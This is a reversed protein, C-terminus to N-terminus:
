RGPMRRRYRDGIHGAVVALVAASIAGFLPHQLVNNVRQWITQKRKRPEQNMRRREEGTSRPNEYDDFM